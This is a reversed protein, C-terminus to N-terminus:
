FSFSMLLQGFKDVGFGGVRFASVDIPQSNGNAGCNEDVSGLPLAKSRHGSSQLNNGLNILISGTINVVIGVNQSM